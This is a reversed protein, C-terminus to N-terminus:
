KDEKNDPCRTSKRPTLAYPGESFTSSKGDNHIEFTEAEIVIITVSAAGDGLARAVMLTQMHESEYM